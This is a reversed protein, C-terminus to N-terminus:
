NKNKNAKAILALIIGVIGAIVFGATISIILEKSTGSSTSSQTSVSPTSSDIVCSDGELVTGPGCRQDIVCSDGELVTGPGCQNTSSNEIVPTEIVPTEIVPTEIVPTEIVPTEIVPTEIVPTEIVPTEIVKSSHFISGIVELEETGSPVAINLTRSQSTTQTETFITEDGDALIFFSYDVGAYISDFFSRDFKVDLKGTSDVVNVSFILSMSETDSEIGTVTMGTTTYPVNFSTNDVNVSINQVSSTISSTSTDKSETVESDSSSNPFSYVLLEMWPYDADIIRYTGIESISISITEGPSLEGTIIRDDKTFDCDTTDNQNSYTSTANPDFQCITFEDYNIKGVANTNSAGSVFSHSVSDNNTITVSAGPNTSIMTNDFYRISEPLFANEVIVVTLNNKDVPKYEAYVLATSLITFLILGLSIKMLANVNPFHLSNESKLNRINKNELM